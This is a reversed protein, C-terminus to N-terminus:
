AHNLAREPPPSDQPYLPLKVRESFALYAAEAEEVTGFLGIHHSRGDVRRAAKYKGRAKHWTVGRPLDYKHHTNGKNMHNESLTCSRLNEVRNDAPNRNWHDIVNPSSGYHM